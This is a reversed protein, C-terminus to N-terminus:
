AFVHKEMRGFAEVLRDKPLACNIRISTPAAFYRGDQYAVGVDWGAHLVEDITRGTRELNEACDMLVMYTGEVRAASCGPLRDNIFDAAFATNDELVPLLEDLWAHGEDSYAGILAHQSLVNMENYHTHEGFRVIKERLVPNWIVHYSGILGALNFTKSPAYASITRQRADESVSATPIHRHGSFVIDSWIEDSIVMCDHRAFVEMARELEWREWVRGSPNHPSCMIALRVHDRELKAEMDEFDMRWVGDEDRVLASYTERRGLERIDGIFGVYAPTHLFIHDGPQTLVNIASAILGHVGNEYGIAERPVEYNHRTRQWGVISDYYEDSPTFYGFLPHEIRAQIARTISPATAFNMDAVWLPIEDFGPKAAGPEFGWVKGGICDVAIADKGHREIHSTFDYSM